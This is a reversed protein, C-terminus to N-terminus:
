RIAEFYIEDLYDWSYDIPDSGAQGEEGEYEMFDRGVRQTAGLWYQTFESRIKRNRIGKEFIVDTFIRAADPDTAIQRLMEGKRFRADQILLETMVYRPSIVGRFVGYVRSMISPIQLETPM